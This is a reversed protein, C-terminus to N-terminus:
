DEDGALGLAKGAIERFEPSAGMWRPVRDAERHAFATLVRERSTM